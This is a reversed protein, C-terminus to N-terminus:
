SKKSVVNIILFVLMQFAIFGILGMLYGNEAFEKPALLTLVFEIVGIVPLFVSMAIKFADKLNVTQLMIIFVLNVILVSSSYCVNTWEYGNFMFGALVNVVLLLCFVILNYMM